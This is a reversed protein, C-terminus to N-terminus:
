KRTLTITNKTSTSEKFAIVHLFSKLQLQLLWLELIRLYLLYISNDNSKSVVEYNSCKKMHPSKLSLTKFTFSPIFSFLDLYQNTAIRNIRDHTDSRMELIAYRLISLNRIITLLEDTLGRWQLNCYLHKLRKTNKV